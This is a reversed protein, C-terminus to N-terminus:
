IICHLTCHSRILCLAYILLIGTGIDLDPSHILCVDNFGVPFINVLDIVLPYYNGMSVRCIFHFYNVRYVEIILIKHGLFEIHIVPMHHDDAM